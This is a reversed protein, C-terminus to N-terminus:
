TSDWRQAETEGDTSHTIVGGKCLQKAPPLTSASASLFCHGHSKPNMGQAAQGQTLSTLICLWRSQSNRSVTMLKQCGTFILKQPSLPCTFSPPQAGLHSCPSLSAWMSARLTALRQTCKRVRSFSTTLMFPSFVELM